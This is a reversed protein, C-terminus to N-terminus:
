HLHEAFFAEIRKWADAAAEPRPGMGAVRFLPRLARPGNETDNLFAHGAGPYEKVDHVVGAKTLGGDLKAAANRLTRDNGGYSGVVPCAGVVAADLDRPLQGYNVAAAWRGARHEGSRRAGTTPVGVAATGRDSRTSAVVM